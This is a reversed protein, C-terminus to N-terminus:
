KPVRNMIWVWGAPLLFTLFLINDHMMWKTNYVTLKKDGAFDEMLVAKASFPLKNRANMKTWMSGFSSAQAYQTIAESPNQMSQWCPPLLYRRTLVLVVQALVAQAM